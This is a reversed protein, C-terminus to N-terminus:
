YILGYKKIYGKEFVNNVLPFLRKRGYSVSFRFRAFEFSKVGYEKKLIPIIQRILYNRWEIQSIKRHEEELPFREVIVPRGFMKGAIDLQFVQVVVLNESTM